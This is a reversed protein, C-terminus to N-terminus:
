SDSTQCLITLILLQAKSVINTSFSNKPIKPSSLYNKIGVLGDIKKLQMFKTLRLSSYEYKLRKLLLVKCSFSVVNFYM